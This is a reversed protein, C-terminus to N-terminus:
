TALQRDKNKPRHSWLIWNQIETNKDGNESVTGPQFKNEAAIVGFLEKRKFRM